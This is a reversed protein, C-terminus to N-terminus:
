VTFYKKSLGIIVEAFDQTQWRKADGFSAGPNIGVTQIKSKDGIKKKQYIKLENPHFSIGLADNIFNNYKEVQHVGRYKNKDFQYKQLSKVFLKFTRSRISGRFSIYIDFFGLDKSFKYFLGINKKIEYARVVNPHSKFVAISIKPGILTIEPNKFYSVINEIAPTTMVSDGLWSPLEILIKM